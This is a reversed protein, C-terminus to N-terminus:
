WNLATDLSRESVYCDFVYGVGRRDELNRKVAEYSNKVDAVYFYHDNDEEVVTVNFRCDTLVHLILSCAASVQSMNDFDVDEILLGFVEKDCHSYDEYFEDYKSKSFTM